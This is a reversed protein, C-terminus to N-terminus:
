TSLTFGGGAEMKAPPLSEASEWMWQGADRGEPDLSQKQLELMESGSSWQLQAWGDGGCNTTTDQWFHYESPSRSGRLQATMHGVNRAAVCDEVVVLVAEADQVTLEKCGWM